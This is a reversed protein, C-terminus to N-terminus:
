ADHHVFVTGKMIVLEKHQESFHGQTVAPFAFFVTKVDKGMTNSGTWLRHGEDIDYITSASGNRDCFQRFAVPHFKLQPKTLVMIWCLECCESIYRRVKGEGM